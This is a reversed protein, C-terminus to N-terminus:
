TRQEQPQGVQVQESQLPTGPETWDDECYWLTKYRHLAGVQAVTAQCTACQPEPSSDSM